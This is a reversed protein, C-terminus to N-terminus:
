SEYLPVDTERYGAIQSIGGPVNLKKGVQFRPEDFLRQESAVTVYGGDDWLAVPYKTPVEYFTGAQHYRSQAVNLGLRNSLVKGTLRRGTLSKVERDGTYNTVQQSEPKASPRALRRLVSNPTDEFPRAQSQLWEYVEEDIEITRL